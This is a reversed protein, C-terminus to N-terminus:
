LSDFTEQNIISKIVEYQNTSKMIREAVASISLHLYNVHLHLYRWGVPMLMVKKM